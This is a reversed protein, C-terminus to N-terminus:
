IPPEVTAAVTTETVPQGVTPRHGVAGFRRLGPVRRAGSPTM